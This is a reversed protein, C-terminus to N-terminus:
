SGRRAAQKAVTEKTAVLLLSANTFHFTLTFSLLKNLNTLSESKIQPM